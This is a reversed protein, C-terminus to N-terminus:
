FVLINNVSSTGKKRKTIRTHMWMHHNNITSVKEINM